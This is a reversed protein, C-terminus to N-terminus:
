SRLPFGLEGARVGLTKELEELVARPDSVELPLRPTPSSIVGLAHLVAKNTAPQPHSRVARIVPEVLRFWTEAQDSDGATWERLVRCLGTPLTNAAGSITGTWGAQLAELLLTEDGVFLCHDPDVAARYSALNDREGSSDKVGIMAELKSLRHITEASLSFGCMKPFNYVLVPVPSDSVVEFLWAEVASASAQRFAGPAMLLVADAGSKAAQSCSWKAESLSPTSIGLILKLKGRGEVATRLLDRKEVAALSPGEGNTGALVVGECGAAEFYALLRLLSPVDVEGSDQYPTVTAPYVGPPLM